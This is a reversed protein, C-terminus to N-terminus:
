TIINRSVSHNPNMPDYVGFLITKRGLLTNMFYAMRETLEPMTDGKMTDLVASVSTDSQKAVEFVLSTYTKSLAANQKTASMFFSYALDYDVSRVAM